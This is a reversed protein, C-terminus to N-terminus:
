FPNATAWKVVAKELEDLQPLVSKYWHKRADPAMCSAGSLLARRPWPSQNMLNRWQSQFWHRQHARGMALILKRRCFDDHATSLMAFFRDENDWQRTHTFLDLAWIRHYELESVLSSELLDLVRAGIEHYQATRLGRLNGLYQVIDPFAPYLIDINEFVTDVLSADGLQGMRRLVFKVIGFDTEPKAIEEQFLGSLNMSDILEQQDENLDSYEIEEYSSSLGIEDILEQFKKYLSDIEKEEPSLLHRERFTKVRLVHTKQPQLTLGHNRYLVEALFALARYAEAHSKTFIRYDDNFRVFNMGSALLADDVDAITAEALLRSPANGVPIGFTETGNWGSLLRMIALVHQSQSTANSLANQLRHHYIRPYFDAIDALAVHSITKDKLLERSQSLFQDYGISPDFLQGDKRPSIRYSFVINRQVPVRIAEIDRAIERILAGFVLFDLPDLQTIIRFAYRSKPALLTRHARVKWNLLDQGSLYSRIDSWNHEIASYEFPLPLMTTDDFRNVHALAWDLSAPKLRLM